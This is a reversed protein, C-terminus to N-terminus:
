FFVQKTVTIWNTITAEAATREQSVRQVPSALQRLEQKTKKLLQKRLTLVSLDVRRKRVPM